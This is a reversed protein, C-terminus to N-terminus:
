KGNLAKGRLEELISDGYISRMLKVNEDYFVQADPETILEGRSNELMRRRKEADIEYIHLYRVLTRPSLEEFKKQGFEEVYDSAIVATLEPPPDKLGHFVLFDAIMEQCRVEDFIPFEFGRGRSSINAPFRQNSAIAVSINRPLSFTGGVHSRFHFWDTASADIDDFFVMFKREPVAELSRILNEFGASIDDPAPLILTLNEFHLTHAITMQTKGLGPLSSILLPLNSVGESFAGFHELFIRRADHYGFFEDISRISDLEVKEFSGNRHRFVRGEGFPALRRANERIELGAAAPSLRLYLSGKTHLRQASPRVRTLSDKKEASAQRLFALYDPILTKLTQTLRRAHALYFAADSADPSGSLERPRTEPPIWRTLVDTLERDFLMVFSGAGGAYEALRNLAAISDNEREPPEALLVGTRGALLDTRAASLFSILARFLPSAADTEPFLTRCSLLAGSFADTLSPPIGNM